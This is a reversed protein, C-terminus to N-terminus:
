TSEGVGGAEPTLRALGSRDLVYQWPFQPGPDLRRQITVNPDDEAAIARRDLDAHAALAAIRPYAASLHGLLGLLADIQAPEYPETMAQHEAHFWRPYRGRNVMEIGLSRDNYGVVHHAIRHDPVYRYLTGDRDIYYHGSAGTESGEYLVREGMVRAAELDPLETCHLVILEIRRPDRAELRDHYPLLHDIIQPPTARDGPM